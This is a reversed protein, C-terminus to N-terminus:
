PVLTPREHIDIVVDAEPLRRPLQLRQFARLEADISAATLSRVADGVEPREILWKPIEERAREMLRDALEDSRGQLRRALQRFKTDLDSKSVTTAM